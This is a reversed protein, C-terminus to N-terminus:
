EQLLETQQKQAVIPIKKPLKEEPIVNELEVTLIGDVLFAGNVRVTDAMQVTKKFARYGIGQHLYSRKENKDVKKGAITLTGKM